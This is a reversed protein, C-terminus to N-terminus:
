LVKKVFDCYEHRFIELVIAFVVFINEVVTIWMFTILKLFNWKQMITGKFFSPQPPLPIPIQIFLWDFVTVFEGRCAAVILARVVIDRQTCRQIKPAYTYMTYDSRFNFFYKLPLFQLPFFFNCFNRSTNRFKPLFLQTPKINRPTM